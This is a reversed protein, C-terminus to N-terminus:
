LLPLVLDLLARDSDVLSLRAMDAASVWAAAEHARLRAAPVPAGAPGSFDADDFSIRWGALVRESGHHPFVVEGIFGTVQVRAGFEEDFERVLAEEDSEGPEVKGGPFEWFGQFSGDGNRRAVFVTSDVIAVGAVSRGVSM